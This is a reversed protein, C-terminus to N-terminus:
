KLRDLYHFLLSERNKRLSKKLQQAHEGKELSIPLGSISGNM